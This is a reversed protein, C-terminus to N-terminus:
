KSETSTSEAKGMTLGIGVGISAGIIGVALLGFLIKPLLTKCPGTAAAAAPRRWWNDFLYLQQNRKM